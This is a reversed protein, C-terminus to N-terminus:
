YLQQEKMAKQGETSFNFDAVINKYFPEWNTFNMHKIKKL